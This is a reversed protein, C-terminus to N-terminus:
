EAQDRYLDLPSEIKVLNKRKVHLYIATTNPSSHGLLVQIHHIDVGNELLHTAFSHRLTHISVAKKIGAKKISAEFVKQITRTSIPKEPSHGPFLWKIPHYLKWYERLLDLATRSLLTYRDKGGKGEQIRILMRKGDIDNVALNAAESIRLGASYIVTLITRHKLNRTAKLLADIEDRELIVPLKRPRRIRPIKSFEWPRGLTNHYFFKLASYAQNIASSTLGKHTILHHLYEKVETCGLSEPRKGYHLIFKEVERLYIKQTKPSMGKLVLEMQMKERLKGM